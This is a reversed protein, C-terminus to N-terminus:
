AIVPMKLTFIFCHSTHLIGLDHDPPFMWLKETVKEGEGRGQQFSAAPLTAKARFPHAPALSPSVHLRLASSTPKRKLWHSGRNMISHHGTGIARMWSRALPLTVWFSLPIEPGGLGARHGAAASGPPLVSPAHVKCVCAKINFSSADKNRGTCKGKIQLTYKFQSWQTGLYEKCTHTANLGPIIRGQCFPGLSQGHCTTRLMGLIALIPM